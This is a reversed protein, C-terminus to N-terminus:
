EGHVSGVTEIHRSEYPVRRIAGNYPLRLAGVVGQALERLMEIHSRARGLDALHIM